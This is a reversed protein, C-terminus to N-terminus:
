HSVTAFAPKMVQKVDDYYDMVSKLSDLPEDPFIMPVIFNSSLMQVEGERVLIEIPLFSFNSPVDEPLVPMRATWEVTSTLGYLKTKQDPIEVQYCINVPLKGTRFSSDITEVAKEFSIFQALVESKDTTAGEPQPEFHQLVDASLGNESGFGTEVMNGVSGCLQNLKGSMALYRSFEVKYFNERFIANGWYEPNPYSIHVKDDKKEIVVRWAANVGTMGGVQKVAGVLDPSTIVLVMSNPAYAPRYEGVFRFSYDGLARLIKDRVVEPDETSEACLLYPQISQAVTMNITILILTIMMGIPKM